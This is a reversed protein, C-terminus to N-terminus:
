LALRPEQRQLAGARLDLAVDAGVLGADGAGALHDGLRALL